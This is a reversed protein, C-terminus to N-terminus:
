YVDGIMDGMIVMEERGKSQASVSDWVGRTTHLIILGTLAAM